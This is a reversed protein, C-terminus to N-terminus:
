LELIENVLIEVHRLHFDFINPIHCETSM